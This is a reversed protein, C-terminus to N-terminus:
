KSATAQLKLVLGENARLRYEDNGSRAPADLYTSLLTERASRECRFLQARDTMNLAILVESNELERSYALVGGDARLLRLAGVSLEANARRLRILSRYLSLMSRPDTAQSAINLVDIDPNLPLWPHGDTFGGHQQSTWPMPTRVPDRGLGFGPVQLEFPDQVQDAPIPVDVM